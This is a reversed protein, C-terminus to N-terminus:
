RDWWEADVRFRDGPDEPQRPAPVTTVDSFYDPGGDAAPPYRRFGLSLAFLCLLSAPLFLFSGLGARVTVAVHENPDVQAVLDSIVTTWTSARQAVSILFFVVTGAAASCAALTSACWQGVLSREHPVVGVVVATLITPILIIWRVWPIGWLTTPLAVGLTSGSIWPLVTSIMMLATAGLAIQTTPRRFRAPAVAPASRARRRILLALSLAWGTVVLGLSCLAVVGALAISM